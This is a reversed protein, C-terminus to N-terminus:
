PKSNLDWGRFSCPCKKVNIQRLIQATLKFFVLFLCFSASSPGNKFVPWFNLSSKDVTGKLNLWIQDCKWLTFNTGIKDNSWWPNFIYDNVGGLLKSLKAAAASRDWPGSSPTQLTFRFGHCRSPNTWCTNISHAAIVWFRTGRTRFVFFIFDTSVLYLPFACKTFAMSVNHQSYM